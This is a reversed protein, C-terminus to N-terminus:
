LLKNELLLEIIKKKVLRLDQSGNALITFFIKKEPLFWYEARFGGQDGSHGITVQSADKLIFWSYGIFPTSNNKWNDPNFVTRSLDTYQRSIFSNKEIAEEYKLLEEVSSWVGGNGAACFTPYEGFDYEQWLDKVKQYGHAVGLQPYEIDTIVSTRMGAKNFILREIYAQWKMGTVNEIILALGNFAPNSYEFREGPQFLLSENQLLPAFNQADNATLFFISDSEVPRNDPLGSTHSLLHKIRIDKVLSKNKFHPFYKLIPDEISLKGLEQLKLIGFAVFTKSVSGLNFITKPTVPTLKKMDALGYGKSFITYDNPKAVLVAMGPENPAVAKSLYEHLQLSFNEEATQAKLSFSASLLASLLWFRFMPKRYRNILILINKTSFFICCLLLSVPLPKRNSSPNPHCAMLAPFYSFFIKKRNIAM